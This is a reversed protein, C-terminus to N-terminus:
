ADVLGLVKTTGEIIFCESASTVMSVDDVPSLQRDRIYDLLGSAYEFETINKAEDNNDFEIIYFM